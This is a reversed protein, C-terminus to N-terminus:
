ADRVALDATRLESSPSPGFRSANMKNFSLEVVVVKERVHHHIVSSESTRRDSM